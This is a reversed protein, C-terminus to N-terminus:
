QQLEKILNEMYSSYTMRMLNNKIRSEDYEVTFRTSDIMKRELEDVDMPSFTYGNVGEEILCSSGAKKSVLAYCGALLAENTVAGFAEQYSALVFYDAINYWVNLADGELRGTFLVNAQLDNVLTELNESEPGEGVIVFINEKQNLRAFAKIATAVNKLAVLRGVFLFVRKNKLGYQNIIGPNISLIREYEKRAKEEPKIIPFCIGKGYHEQYWNTVKPEVLILNDLRPVVLRRAIRHIKSFDNKEAVMNYSDDCISVIKYKKRKFFRHLLVMLATMNFESVLVIDPNFEDLHEWFGGWLSRSGIKLVEKLYYPKFAFQAYIKDYDFTQDRLNWYQLCVRTDFARYLDNFFDIRYPAITPHFILLRKKM